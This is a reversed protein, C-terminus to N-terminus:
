NCIKIRESKIDSRDQASSAERFCSLISTQLFAGALAADARDAEALAADARDAEALAVDARDAEALVADAQDSERM